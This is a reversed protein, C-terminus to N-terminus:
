RVGMYISRFVTSRGVLWCRRLGRKGKCERLGVRVVVPGTDTARDHQLVGESNGGRVGCTPRSCIKLRTKDQSSATAKMNTCSRGKRRAFRTSVCRMARMSLSSGGSTSMSPMTARTSSRSPAPPFPPPAPSPPTFAIPKSIPLSSRRLPTRRLPWPPPGCYPPAGLAMRHSRNSTPPAPIEDATSLAM